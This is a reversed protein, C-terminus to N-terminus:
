WLFSSGVSVCVSTAEDGGVGLPRGKEERKCESKIVYEMDTSLFSTIRTKGQKEQGDLIDWSM